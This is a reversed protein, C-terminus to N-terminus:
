KTDNLTNIKKSLNYNDILRRFFLNTPQYEIHSENEPYLDIIEDPLLMIDGFMDLEFTLDRFTITIIENNDLTEAIQIEPKTM